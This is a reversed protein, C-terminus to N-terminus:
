ILAVHGERLTITALLPYVSNHHWLLQGRDHRSILESFFMRYYAVKFSDITIVANPLIPLRDLKSM